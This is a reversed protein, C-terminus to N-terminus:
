CRQMKDELLRAVEESAELCRRSHMAMQIIDHPLNPYVVSSIANGAAALKRAYTHGVDRLM